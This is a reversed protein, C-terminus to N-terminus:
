HPKGHFNPSCTQRVALCKTEKLGHRVATLYDSGPSKITHVLKSFEDVVFGYYKKLIALSNWVFM